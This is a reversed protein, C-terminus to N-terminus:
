EITYVMNEKKKCPSSADEKQGKRMQYNSIHKVDEQRRDPSFDAYSANYM